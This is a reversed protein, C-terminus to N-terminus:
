NIESLFHVLEKASPLGVFVLENNYLVKPFAGRENDPVYVIEFDVDHDATTLWDTLIECYRCGPKSLVTLM